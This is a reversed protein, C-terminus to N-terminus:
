CTLGNPLQTHNDTSAADVQSQTLGICNELNAGELRAGNLIAGTMNTNSLWAEQLDTGTLDANTLNSEEINAGTLDARSLNASSLNVNHMRAGESFDAGSCDARPMETEVIAVGRAMSWKLTCDDLRSNVIKAFNLVSNQLDVKRLDVNDLAAYNLFIKELSPMRVSLESLRRIIGVKRLVGEESGWHLYDLLEDTYRKARQRTRSVRDYASLIVGFVLVDLLFGHFETVFSDFNFDHWLLHYMITVILLFGLTVFWALWKRGLLTLWFRYVSYKFEM